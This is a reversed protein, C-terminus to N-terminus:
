PKKQRMIKDFKKVPLKLAIALDVIDDDTIKSPKKKNFKKSHSNLYRAISALEDEGMTEDSFVYLKMFVIIGFFGWM